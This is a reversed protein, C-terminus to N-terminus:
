TRTPMGLGDAKKKGASENNGPCMGAWSCLRSSSGFQEMDVGIEALLMAASIENIGPITQLLQWQEMYPKMAAVIQSDIDQIQEELWQMHKLIQQLLYRHRDSINGELAIALDDRKAKLRGKGLKAIDQPSLKGEILAEIMRIASVGDISSVVSGLRIGCADLTKALRNKEAAAYGRLKRRYRTLMRLERFDRPPIFSAKLLGFRALEALWESDLVDTKRGPVNKVHRANVVYTKINAEELIEYVIQWYIGTSEMVALEVNMECLWRALSHLDKKFARFEKTTKVPASDPEGSLVTCVVKAKHVDLGASVSVIPEVHM